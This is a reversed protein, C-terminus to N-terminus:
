EYIATLKRFQLTALFLQLTCPQTGLRTQVM